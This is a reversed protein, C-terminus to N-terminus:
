FDICNEIVEKCATLGSKNPRMFMWFCHNHRIKKCIGKVFLLDKCCPTRITCFISFLNFNLVLIPLYAAISKMTIRKLSLFRWLRVLATYVGIISRKWFYSFNFYSLNANRFLNKLNCLLSTLIKYHCSPLSCFLTTTRIQM